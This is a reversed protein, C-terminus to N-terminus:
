LPWLGCWPRCWRGGLAVSVDGADMMSRAVRTHRLFIRLPRILSYVWAGYGFGIESRNVVMETYLGLRDARNNLLAKIPAIYLAGVGEPENEVMHSLTPFISAETKGGATPALITPMQRTGPPAVSRSRPPGRLSPETSFNFRELRDAAIVAIIPSLAQSAEPARLRCEEHLRRTDLWGTTRMVPVDDPM